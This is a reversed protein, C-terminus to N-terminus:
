ILCWYYLETRFLWCMKVTVICWCHITGICQIPQLKINKNQRAANMAFYVIYKEFLVTLFQYIKIIKPVNSHQSFKVHFAQVTTVRILWNYLRCVTFQTSLAVSLDLCEMLLCTRWLRWECRVSSTARWQCCRMQVDCCRWSDNTSLWSRRWSVIHCQERRSSFAAHHRQVLRGVAAM